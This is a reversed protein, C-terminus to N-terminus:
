IRIKTCSANEPPDEPQTIVYEEMNKISLRVDMGYKFTRGIYNAIDRTTEIYQDAQCIDFNDHVHMKLEDCQGELRPTRNIM